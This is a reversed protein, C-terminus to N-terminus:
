QLPKFPEWYLPADLSVDQWSPHTGRTNQITELNSAFCAKLATVAPALPGKQLNNVVLENRVSITRVGIANLSRYTVQEGYYPAGLRDIEGREVGVLTFRQAEVEAKVQNNGEVWDMPKGGMAMFAFVEGNQLMRLGDARTKAEFVELGLKLREDIINATVVASQWAAVRRGKLDSLTRIPVMVTEQVVKETTGWLTRERVTKSVVTRVGASPTFIHLHSGHLSALSRVQRKILPEQRGLYDLLDVQVIGGDFKRALMQTLNDWGGQTQRSECVMECANGISAFVLAYTGSATGTGIVLKDPPCNDQTQALAPTGALVLAAALGVIPGAIPAVFRLTVNM